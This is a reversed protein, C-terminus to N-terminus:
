ADYLWIVTCSMVLKNDMM